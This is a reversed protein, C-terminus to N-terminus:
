SWSHLDIKVPSLKIIGDIFSKFDVPISNNYYASVTMNYRSYIISWGGKPVNKSRYDAGSLKKAMEQLKFIESDSLVVSSETKKEFVFTKDFNKTGKGHTVKLVGERKIEILYVKEFSGVPSILVTMDNKNMREENTLNNICSLLILMM